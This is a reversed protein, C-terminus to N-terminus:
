YRHTSVSEDTLALLPRINPFSDDHCIRERYIVRLIRPLSFEMNDISGTHHTVDGPAHVVVAERYARLKFPRGEKIEARASRRIQEM